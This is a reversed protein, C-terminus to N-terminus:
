FGTGVYGARNMELTFKTLPRKFPFGSYAKKLSCESQLRQKRSNVLTFFFANLYTTMMSINVLVCPFTLSSLLLQPVSTIMFSFRQTSQQVSEIPM